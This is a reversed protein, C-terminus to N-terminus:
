DTPNAAFWSELIHCASVADLGARRVALTQQEAAYSSLREDILSVPKHYRGELKRAFRQIDTALPHPTGDATFPMGLVFRDPRWTDVLRSIATWDPRQQRVTITELATATATLDQGVAAGLRRTGYDFALVTTLPKNVPNTEREPTDSTTRSQM